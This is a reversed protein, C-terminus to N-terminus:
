GAPLKVFQGFVGQWGLGYGIATKMDHTSVIFPAVGGLVLYGVIVGVLGLVRQVNPTWQVRGHLAEWSLPLGFILLLWLAAGGAGSCATGIPSLDAIPM